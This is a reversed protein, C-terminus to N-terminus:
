LNEGSPGPSYSSPKNDNNWRRRWINGPAPDIIDRRRVAESHGDAFMVVTRGQHRNAPWQDQERPDVDGDWSRDSKSDSLMLMEPPNKVTSESVEKVIGIDGGLGLQGGGFLSGGPTGSGWDNYGYSFETGTPSAIVYDIGRSLTRNANTDWQADAPKL